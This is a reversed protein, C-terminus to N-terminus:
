KPETKKIEGSYRMSSRNISFINLSAGGDPGASLNLTFSDNGTKVVAKLKYGKKTNEMVYEEPKGEFMYGTQRGYGASATKATGFFPLNSKIMEPSFSVTNPGSTISVPKGRESFATVGVFDFIKFNMLDETLLQQELKQEQKTKKVNDQAFGSFFAFIFIVISIFYRTIM